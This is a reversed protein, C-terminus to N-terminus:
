YFTKVYIKSRTLHTANYAYSVFVKCLENVKICCNKKLITTVLNRDIKHEIQGRQRGKSTKIHREETSFIHNHGHRHLACLRQICPHINIPSNTLKLKVHYM